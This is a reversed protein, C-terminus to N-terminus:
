RRKIGLTTGPEFWRIPRAALAPGEAIAGHRGDDEAYGLSLVETYDPASVALLERVAALAEAESAFTDIINATQLDWLDYIM